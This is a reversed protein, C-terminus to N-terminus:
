PDGFSRVIEEVKRPDREYVGVYDKYMAIADADGSKIKQSVALVPTGTIHFAMPWLVNYGRMRKFRAIVDGIAYTRGHGVHLNGSAYPYPVTFFFKKEKASASPEFVRTKAWEGQWKREIEQFNAQSM